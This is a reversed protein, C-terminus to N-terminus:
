NLQTLLLAAEEKIPFWYCDTALEQVLARVENAKAPDTVLVEKLTSIYKKFDGINSSDDQIDLGLRLKGLDSVLPIQAADLTTVTQALHKAKKRISPWYSNTVLENVLAIVEAKMSPDSKLVDNLKALYKTHDDYSDHSDMNLRSRMSSVETSSAAQTQTQEFTTAIPQAPIVPEVNSHQPSPLDDMTVRIPEAARGGQEVDDMTIVLESQPVTSVVPIAEAEGENKYAEQLRPQAHNEVMSRITSESADIVLSYIYIIILNRDYVPFTKLITDTISDFKISRMGYQDRKRMDNEFQFFLMLAIEVNDAVIEKIESIIDQDLALEKIIEPQITESARAVVQMWSSESLGRSLSEPGKHFTIGGETVTERKLTQKLRNIHAAVESVNSSLEYFGYTRENFPVAMIGEYRHDRMLQQLNGQENQTM